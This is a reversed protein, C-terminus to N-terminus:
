YSVTLVHFTLENSLEQTEKKHSLVKEVDRHLAFDTLESCFLIMSCYREHQANSEKRTQHYKAM